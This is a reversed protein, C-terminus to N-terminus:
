PDYYSFVDTYAQCQLYHGSGITVNNAQWDCTMFFYIQPYQYPNIGAAGTQSVDRYWKRLYRPFKITLKHYREPSNIRTAVFVTGVTGGTGSVAATLHYKTAALSYVRSKWFPKYRGYGLPHRFPYNHEHAAEAYFIPTPGQATGPDTSSFLQVSHPTTGAAALMDSEQTGRKDWVAWFRYRALQFDLLNGYPITGDIRAVKLHITLRNALLYDGVKTSSSDGGLPGGLKLGMVSDAAGSYM